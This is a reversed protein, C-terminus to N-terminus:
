ALRMLNTMMAGEPRGQSGAATLSVMAGYVTLKPAAYAATMKTKLKDDM